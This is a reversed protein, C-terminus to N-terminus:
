RSPNSPSGTRLLRAKVRQLVLFALWAGLLGPAVYIVLFIFTGKPGVQPGLLLGFPRAIVVIMAMGVVACVGFAIPVLFADVAYPRLKPFVLCILGCTIALIIFPTAYIIQLM